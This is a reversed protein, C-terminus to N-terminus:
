KWRTALIFGIIILAFGIVINWGGIFYIPFLGETLSYITVWTIGIIFCTLMAPILWRPNNTGDFRIDSTKRLPDKRLRMLKRRESKEKSM